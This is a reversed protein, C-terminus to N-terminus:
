SGPNSYIGGQLAQVLLDLEKHISQQVANGIGQATAASTGSVQVTVPMNISLPGRGGGAGAFALSSSGYAGGALMRSHNQMQSFMSSLATLATATNQNIGQAVGQPISAALDSYVKSPSGHQIANKAANYLATFFGAIQGSAWPILNKIGTVVGTVISGGIGIWQSATSDFKTKLSTLMSSFSSVIKAGGDHFATGIMSFAAGWQKFATTFAGSIKGLILHVATGLLSFTGGWGALSTSFENGIKGIILHVATGFMSFAGGWQAFAQKFMKPILVLFITEWGGLGVLALAFIKTFLDGFLAGFGSLLTGLYGWHTVVLGVAVGIALFLAVIIGLPAIVALGGIAVGNESVAFAGFQISAGGALIGALEISAGISKIMGALATYVAMLKMQNVIIMLALGWAIAPGVAPINLMFNLLQIVDATITTLPVALALYISLAPAMQPLLDLIAIIEKKHAEFLSGVAQKGSTSSLYTHLKTLIGTLMSVMTTGVGVAQGFLLAIDKFLIVIFGKWVEFVKIVDAVDNKVRAWGAPSNLYTFLRDLGQIFGGTYNSALDLFRLLFEIGKVFADIATPLDKAFKNELDKFIGMGQPGELWKFLPVLGKNIISLNREAAAAVLPIYKEGLLLISTLLGVAQVRAASTAKDWQQNITYALKALGLEAKVGATNGLILLQNNLNQTANQAQISNAGYLLVAQQLGSWATYLTQTDTITSRMVAMDSGMGVAMTAFTGAVIVGLGMFAQALSGVLGIALTLVRELGFGALAGISGFGALGFQGAGFGAGGFGLAAIGAMVSKWLSPAIATGIATGIVTRDVALAALNVEPIISVDIPKEAFLRFASMDSLISFMDLQMQVGIPSTRAIAELDMIDGFLDAQLTALSTLEAKVNVTTPTKSFEDLMAKGEVLTKALDGVEGVLSAIVPPLYTGGGEAM